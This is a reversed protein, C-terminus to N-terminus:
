DDDEKPMTARCMCQAVTKGNLTLENKCDYLDRWNGWTKEKSIAVSEPLPDHSSHNGSACDACIEMGKEDVPGIPSYKVM